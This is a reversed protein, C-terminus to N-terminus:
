YSGHQGHLYFDLMGLFFHVIFNVKLQLRVYMLSMFSAISILYTQQIILPADMFISFVGVTGFNWIIFSATLLDLACNFRVLVFYFLLTSFLYLLIACATLVWLFLIVYFKYIYLFLMLFTAAIVMGLLISVNLIASTLQQDEENFLMVQMPPATKTEPLIDVQNTLLIVIFMCISVPIFIQVVNAAGSALDLDDTTEIGSKLKIESLNPNSGSHTNRQGDSSNSSVSQNSKKRPKPVTTSTKSDKKLELKIPEVNKAEINIQVDKNDKNQLDM